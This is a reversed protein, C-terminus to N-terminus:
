FKYTSTLWLKKTDNKGISDDGKSFDAYKLNLGIGNDLKTGVVFGIESGYEDGDNVGDNADFQHYVGLLKIGAIRTGM